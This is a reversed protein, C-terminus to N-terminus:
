EAPTYWPTGDVKLYREAVERSAVERLRPRSGEHMVDVLLRRGDLLVENWAHALGPPGDSAFNGRVLAAELGAEDALLKFLLARHRCVGAQCQDLWDGLLLPRNAFERQLQETTEGVWRIGGPPTTHRDIWQAIRTIREAPPLARLQESRAFALDDALEVDRARDVWLIERASSARGDSDLAMNRGGDLYGDPIRVTGGVYHRENYFRVVEEASDAVAPLRQAAPLLKIALDFFLDSSNPSAQHLEVALVNLAGPQLMGAPVHVRRYFGEGDNGIARLAPTAADIAGGPMNYRGLERGNLYIVAGDDLSVVVVLQEDAALRSADFECRLWTTMHKRQADRGFSLRTGLREEGYGLPAPGTNWQSDDYDLQRWDAAPAAGADLYAWSTARGAELLTRASLLSCQLAVVAALLRCQFSHM